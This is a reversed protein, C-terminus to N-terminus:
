ADQVIAPMCAPAILRYPFSFDHVMYWGYKGRMARLGLDLIDAVGVIVYETGEVPKWQLVGGLVRHRQCGQLSVQLHLVPDAHRAAYEHLRRLLAAVVRVQQM